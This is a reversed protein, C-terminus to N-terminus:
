ESDSQRHTASREVARSCDVRGLANQESGVRSWKSVVHHSSAPSWEGRMVNPGSQQRDGHTRGQRTTSDASSCLLSVCAFM